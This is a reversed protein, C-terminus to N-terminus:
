KRRRRPAPSKREGAATRYPATNESFGTNREAIPDSSLLLDAGAELVASRTLGRRKAYADIARLRNSDLSVNVRQPRGLPPRISVLMAIADRWNVENERAFAKDARIKDLPRPPPIRDRHAVASAIWGSLAEGATTQAEAMNEGRTVCGPLDPFFVAYGGRDRDPALIAVYSQIPKQAM